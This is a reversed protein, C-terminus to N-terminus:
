EISVGTHAVSPSSVFVVNKVGANQAQCLLIRTGTVNVRVFESWDGTFSVKAALHVVDDVRELAREVADPDDVSGLFQEFGEENALAAPSRQMLRVTWGRERLLRAVSEGLMGSAGTVLVRRGEGKLETVDRLEASTARHGRRPAYDASPTSPTPSM